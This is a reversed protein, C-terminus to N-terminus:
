ISRKKLYIGAGLLASNLALVAYGYEPGTSPYKTYSLPQKGGKTTEGLVQKEIIMQASDETTECIDGSAKLTNQFITLAQNPLEGEADAKYTIYYIKEEQPQLDGINITYESAGKNLVAQGSIYSIYEPIVSTIKVHPIVLNSVNKIKAKAMIVQNPKYKTDRVTINDIFDTLNKSAPNSITQDFAICSTVPTSGYYGYSDAFAPAVSLALFAFTTTVIKLTTKMM